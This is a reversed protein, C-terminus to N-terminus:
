IGAFEYNQNRVFSKPFQLFHRDGYHKTFGKKGPDPFGQTTQYFTLYMYTVNWTMQIVHM